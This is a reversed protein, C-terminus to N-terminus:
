KTEKITCSKTRLASDDAKRFSHKIMAWTGFLKSAFSLFCYSLLLGLVAILQVLHLVYQSTLKKLSETIYLCNKNM